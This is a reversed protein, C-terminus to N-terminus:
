DRRSSCLRLVCDDEIKMGEHLRQICELTLADCASAMGILYDCVSHLALEFEHQRLFEDFHERYTEADSKAFVRRLSELEERLATSSSM